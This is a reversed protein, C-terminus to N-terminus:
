TAARGDFHQLARLTELAARAAEEGKNGSDGGARALAQALTDCTLVGFGVPIGFRTTADTLGRSAAGAVYEFHPTEGRIVAGLAVALAYRQTGLGRHVALPLEFAGPVWVIDVADAPYGGEALAAQAGQLLKRTIGENFRSVVILARRRDRGGTSASAAVM